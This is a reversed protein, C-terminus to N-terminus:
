LRYKAFTDIIDKVTKLQGIERDPIEVDIDSECELILEYRNLSDAFDNIPTEETVEEEINYLEQIKELVITAILERKM